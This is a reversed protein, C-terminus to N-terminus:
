IRLKALTLHPSLHPRISTKAGVSLTLPAAPDSATLFPTVSSPSPELRSNSPPSGFSLEDIKDETCHIRGHPTSHDTNDVISFSVIDVIYADSEDHMMCGALAWAVGSSTVLISLCLISILKVSKTKMTKGGTFLRLAHAVTFDHFDRLYGECRGM